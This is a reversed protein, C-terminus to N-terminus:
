GTRNPACRDRWEELPRFRRSIPARPSGKRAEDSVTSRTPATIQSISGDPQTSPSASCRAQARLRGTPPTSSPHRPRCARRRRRSQLATTGNVTLVDGNPAVALGLPANLAGGRTLTAGRGVSSSRHLPDAVVAIRDALTDALNLARPGGGECGDDGCPQSLGLGTPGIVLAAPDTREPLGAAVVTAAQHRPARKPSVDLDLRVVTGQNVVQGGAAVTGSM